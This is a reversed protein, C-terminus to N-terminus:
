WYVPLGETKTVLWKTREKELSFKIHVPNAPDGMIYGTDSGKTAIVSVDMDAIATKDRVTVKPNEYEVSIDSMQLFVRELSKKIYLYTFGYEDSYNYSVKSMVAGVDEREIAAAGERILKRIRSEDSPWILYLIIPLLFLLFLFAITKKSM